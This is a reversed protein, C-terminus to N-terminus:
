LGDLFKEKEEDTLESIVSHIISNRRREGLNQLRMRLCEDNREMSNKLATNNYIDLVEGGRLKELMADDEETWERRSVLDVDKYKDVYLRRLLAKAMSSIKETQPPSPGQRWKLVSRLEAVLWDKYNPKAAIIALAAEENEAHQECTEKVKQLEDADKFMKKRAMAILADNSNMPGGGNTVKFWGGATAVSMLLDQRERTNPLTVTENRTATQEQTVTRVSRRLRPTLRYGVSQLYTDAAHNEDELGKYLPGLPDADVDIVGDEDHCDRTM